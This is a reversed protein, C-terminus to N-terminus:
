TPTIALWRVINRRVQPWDAPDADDWAPLKLDKLKGAEWADPAAPWRPGPRKLRAWAALREADVPGM